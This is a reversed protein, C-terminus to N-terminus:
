LHGNRKSSCPCVAEEAPASTAVDAPRGGEDRDPEVYDLPPAFDVECDTEIVSIADQLLHLIQLMSISAICQLSVDESGM